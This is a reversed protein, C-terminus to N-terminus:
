FYNMLDGLWYVVSFGFWVQNNSRTFMNKEGISLGFVDASARVRCELRNAPYFALGLTASVDLLDIANNPSADYFPLTFTTDPRIIQVNGSIKQRSYFKLSAQGGALIKMRPHLWIYYMGPVDLMYLKTTGQINPVQIAGPMITTDRNHISYGRVGLSFGSEFWLDDELRFVMSTGLHWNYLYGAQKFEKGRMTSTHLGVHVGYPLEYTNLMTQPTEDQAQVGNALTIICLRIINIAGPLSFVSKFTLNAVPTLTKLM